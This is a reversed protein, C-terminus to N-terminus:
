FLFNIYIGWWLFFFFYFILLWNYNLLKQPISISVESNLDHRACGRGAKYEQYQSIVCLLCYVKFVCFFYFTSFIIVFFFFLFLSFCWVFCNKKNYKIQTNAPLVNNLWCCGYQIGSGDEYVINDLENYYFQVRYM